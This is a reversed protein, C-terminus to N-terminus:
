FCLPIFCHASHCCEHWFNMSICVCQYVVGFGGVAIMGNMARLCCILLRHDDVHRRHSICNQSLTDRNHSDYVIGQCWVAM